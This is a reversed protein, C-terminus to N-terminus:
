KKLRAMIQASREVIDKQICEPVFGTIDGGFYLMERVGSSSLYSYREDTMIFVTELEKDIKKMLLARQFEYEFDTFARLGRVIFKAGQERCFENLLGSFSTVVLNPIHATAKKILNVREEMSFMAKDKTPNVFVSVIVEDFMVSAREFIDLHGLTVPDFSGPCVARRV